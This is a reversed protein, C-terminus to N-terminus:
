PSRLADIGPLTGLELFELTAGGGTSLHTVQNKWPTESIAAITEGGGAITIAKSKAFAEAIKQTGLAFPAKEFVGMPGNWLITEAKNIVEIFSAVTKPGIDLGKYGNPIGNAIEIIKPHPDDLDKAIVIDIPLLLPFKQLLDKAKELFDPEYLSDGIEIGQAKFFTFAMGGGIAMQDCKKSLAELVGIKSSIKAGGILALFPKKPNKLTHGLFEIEKEMLFGAASKEPFLRPVDVISAHARHACGFADDVYYDALSALQKAFSIDLKPNEEAKHFRLNELLLVDGPKLGDIIKNVEPGICDPAMLVPQNLLHSLEEAVSKLSLADTPGDPRGLHSMLIVACKKSLLYHITPLAAVIRSSDVKGHSIPVNFDVRVLVRKNDLPLDKLM